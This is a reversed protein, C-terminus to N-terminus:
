PAGRMFRVVDPCRDFMEAVDDCDPHAQRGEGVRLLAVRCDVFRTREPAQFAFDDAACGTRALLQQECGDDVSLAQTVQDCRPAQCLRHVVDRCVEADPAPPGACACSLAVAVLAPRARM